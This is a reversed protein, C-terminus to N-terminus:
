LWFTRDYQVDRGAILGGMLYVDSGKCPDVDANRFEMTPEKAISSEESVMQTFRMDFMPDTLYIHRGKFLVNQCKIAGHIVGLGHLYNLASLLDVAWTAWQHCKREVTMSQFWEPTEVLFTELNM